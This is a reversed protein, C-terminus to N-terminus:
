GRKLRRVKLFEAVTSPGPWHADKEDATRPKNSRCDV